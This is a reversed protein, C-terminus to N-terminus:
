CPFDLGDYYPRMWSMISGTADRAVIGV